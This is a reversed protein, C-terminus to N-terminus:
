NGEERAPPLNKSDDVWGQYRCDCSNILRECIADAQRRFADGDVPSLSSFFIRKREAYDFIAERMLARAAEPPVPAPNFEPSIFIVRSIVGRTRFSAGTARCLQAATIRRRGAEKGRAKLQRYRGKELRSFFEPFLAFTGPHLTIINPLGRVAVKDGELYTLARDNTILRAGSLLSRILYTSKGGGKPAIVLSTAGEQEYAAAHFVVGGRSNHYLTTLKRVARAFYFRLNEQDAPAAILLQKQEPWACCLAGFEDNQLVRMGPVFFERHTLPRGDPLHSPIEERPYPRLLALLNEYDQENARYGVQWDAKGPPSTRFHPAMFAQLWQLPAKGESRALISFGRLSFRLADPCAALLAEAQRCVDNELTIATVAM